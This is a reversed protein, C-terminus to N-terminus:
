PISPVPGEGRSANMCEVAWLKGQDPKGIARGYRECAAAARQVAPSFPGSRSEISFELGAIAVKADWYLAEADGAPEARQPPVDFTDADPGSPYMDGSNPGSPSPRARPAERRLGNLVAQTFALDRQVRHRRVQDGPTWSHQGPVCCDYKYLMWEAPPSAAPQSLIAHAVERYTADGDPLATGTSEWLGVMFAFEDDSTCGM